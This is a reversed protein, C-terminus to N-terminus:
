KGNDDGPRYPYTFNIIKRDLLIHCNACLTVGNDLDIALEWFSARPKLHCGQLVVINDEGCHLCKFGDRKLLRKKWTESIEKHGGKGSTM